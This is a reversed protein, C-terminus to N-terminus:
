GLSPSPPCRGHSCASPHRRTHLCPSPPPGWHSPCMSSSWRRWQRRRKGSGSRRSWSYANSDVSDTSCCSARRRSNRRWPTSNRKTPAPISKWLHWPTSHYIVSLRANWDAGKTGITASKWRHSRTPGRGRATSNRTPDNSNRFNLHTRGKDAATRILLPLTATHSVSIPAKGMYDSDARVHATGSSHRPTLTMRCHNALANNLTIIVEGEANESISDGLGQVENRWRGHRQRRHRRRRAEKHVETRGNTLIRTGAASVFDMRLVIPIVQDRVVVWPRQFSRSKVEFTALLTYPSFWPSPPARTPQLHSNAVLSELCIYPAHHQRLQEGVEPSVTTILSATSMIAEYSIEHVTAQVLLAPQLGM